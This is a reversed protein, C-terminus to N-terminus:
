SLTQVYGRVTEVVSDAKKEQHVSSFAKFGRELKGDSGTPLTKVLVEDLRDCQTRCGDIVPMLDKQTEQDLEGREAQKQTESLTYLLLPLQSKIDRFVNPVEDVRKQFEDLRLLLERGWKVLSARHLSRALLHSYRLCSSEM